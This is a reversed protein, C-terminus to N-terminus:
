GRRWPRAGCPRSRGAAGDRGPEHPHRGVMQALYEGAGIRRGPAGRTEGLRGGAIMREAYSALQRMAEAYTALWALGHTARQERDLARPDPRGDRMVRAAVALRADALLGEAAKVGQKLTTILELGAPKAAAGPPM